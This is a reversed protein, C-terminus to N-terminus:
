DKDELIKNVIEKETNKFNNIALFKISNEKHKSFIPTDPDMIKMEFNCM